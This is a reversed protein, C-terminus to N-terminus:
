RFNAQLPQIERASLAALDSIKWDLLSAISLRSIHPRYLKLSNFVQIGM